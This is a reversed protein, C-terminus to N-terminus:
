GMRREKPQAAFESEIHCLVSLAALDRGIVRKVSLRVTDPTGHRKALIRDRGRENVDIAVVEEDDNIRTTPLEVVVTARVSRGREVNMGTRGSGRIQNNGEENDWDVVADITFQNATNGDPIYTVEQAFGNQKDFFVSNADDITDQLTM